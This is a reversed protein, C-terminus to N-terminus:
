PFNLCKIIISLSLPLTVLSPFEPINPDITFNITHTWTAIYDSSGTSTPTFPAGPPNAGHYDDLRCVVDITLSHSGESLEPLAVLGTMKYIINFGTDETSLPISGNSIGDISYNLSCRLGVGQDFTINLYLLRSGYTTNLPSFVTTGSSFRIQDASDGKVPKLNEVSVWVCCFILIMFHASLKKM